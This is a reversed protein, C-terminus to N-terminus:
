KVGLVEIGDDALEINRNASKITAESKYKEAGGFRDGFMGMSRFKNAM